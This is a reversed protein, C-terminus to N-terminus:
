DGLEEEWNQGTLTLSIGFVQGHEKLIDMAEM